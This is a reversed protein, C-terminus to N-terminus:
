RRANKIKWHELTIARIGLTDRYLGIHSNRTNAKIVAM